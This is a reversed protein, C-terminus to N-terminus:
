YCFVPNSTKGENDALYKDKNNLNNMVLNKM